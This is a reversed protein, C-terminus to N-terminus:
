VRSKRLRTILLTGATLLLLAVVSPEPITQLEVSAWNSTRTTSASRIKGWDLRATSSSAADGAFDGLILAGNAYLSVAGAGPTFRLEVDILDTTDATYVIANSQYGNLVIQLKGASSGFFIYYRWADTGTLLTGDPKYHTYFALGTHGSSSSQTGAVAVSTSISWGMAALEADKEATIMQRYYLDSSTGGSVLNDTINWTPTGNVSGGTVSLGADSGQIKTWDQATPDPTGSSADYDLLVAAGLPSCTLFAAAVFAHFAGHRMNYNADMIKTKM